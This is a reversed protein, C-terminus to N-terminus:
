TRWDDAIVSCQFTQAAADNNIMQCSVILPPIIISDEQDWFVAGLGGHAAIGFDTAGATRAVLKVLVNKGPTFNTWFFARGTYWYSQMITLNAGPNIVSSIAGILTGPTSVNIPSPTRNVHAMRLTATATGTAIALLVQMYPGLHSANFQVPANNATAFIREGIMNTFAADTFWRIRGNVEGGLSTAFWFQLTNWNAVTGQYAVPFFSTTLNVNGDYFPLNNWQAQEQFDPFGVLSM